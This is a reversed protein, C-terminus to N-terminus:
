TPNILVSERCEKRQGSRGVTKKRGETKWAQEKERKKGSM